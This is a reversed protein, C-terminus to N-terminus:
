HFIPAHTVAEEDHGECLQMALPGATGGLQNVLRRPHKSLEQAYRAAFRNLDAATRSSSSLDVRVTISNCLERGPSEPGVNVKGLKTERTPPCTQL